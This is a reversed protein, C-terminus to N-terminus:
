RQIIGQSFKGWININIKFDCFDEITLEPVLIWVVVDRGVVVEVVIKNVVLLEDVVGVFVEEVEVDVVVVVVEGERTVNRVKRGGKVWM